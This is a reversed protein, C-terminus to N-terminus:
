RGDATGGCFELGLVFAVLEDATWRTDGDPLSHNYCFSCAKQCRNTVEISIREFPM